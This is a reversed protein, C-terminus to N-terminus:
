YRLRDQVKVRELKTARARASSHHSYERIRERPGKEFDLRTHVDKRRDHRVKEM